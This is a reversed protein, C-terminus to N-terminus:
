AMLHRKPLTVPVSSRTVNPCTRPAPSYTHPEPTVTPQPQAMPQTIHRAVETVLEMRRHVRFKCLLSSVYFKVTRESLGLNAAIQKNALCHMVGDLVEEQRRTLRIPSNVSHGARLLEEAKETLGELVEDPAQVMVVYDRPMQGRVMCHMALLGAAQEVPFHGDPGAQV